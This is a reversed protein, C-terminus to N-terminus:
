RPWILACLAALGCAIPFWDGTQAYLTPKGSGVQVDAILLKAGDKFHDSSKQVRGAESTMASIGESAARALAFRFELGRWLHNAFHIDRILKWDNTPVVLLQVGAKAYKRAIDPFNDDQCIIGGVKVGDVDMLAIEGKGRTYREFVPVLHTKVYRGVVEGNATVFDICNENRSQDFYGIALALNYRLALTCIAVRFHTRDQVHIAAEPTVLLRAGKESAERAANQFETPLETRGDMQIGAWGFTAVRLTQPSKRCLFLSELIAGLILFGVTWLLVISLSDSSGVVKGVSLNFVTAAGAALLISSWTGGATGFWSIFQKNSPTSCSFNQATGWLPLLTWELWFLATGWSAILLCNLPFPSRWLNWAGTTFLTWVLLQSLTMLASVPIPLLLQRLMWCVYGAAFLAGLQAAQGPSHAWVRITLLLLAVSLIVGSGTLERKNRPLLRDYGLAIGLLTAFVPALIM